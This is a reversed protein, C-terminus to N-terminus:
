MGMGALAPVSQAPKALQSSVEGGGEPAPAGGQMMAMQEAQATMQAQQGMTELYKDPQDNFERILDSFFREKNAAFIEPFLQAVTTVKEMALAMDLAKGRLHLSATTIELDFEWEDLYDTPIVVIQAPEGEQYRLKEEEVDLANFPENEASFGVPQNLAQITEPQAVRVQLVGTEGSTLPSRPINFIRTFEAAREEGLVANLYMPRNYHMLLNILRVRTKQLWLDKLMTFFTGKLEFAKENSIVIERATVGTGGVGQQLADVSALSLEQTVMQLMNFESQSVGEIPLPKVGDINDVYIRTDGTVFEDELEMADKNNMSVLMPTVLSRYNKDLMTNYLSNEVDQQPMLINALSNGWFLSSNAFPEFLTKAFPYWKKTKGWLLPAELVLVGNAIIAYMDKVKSYYRLVEIKKVNEIRAFWKDGFFLDTQGRSEQVQAKTKVNGANKFQGFELEFEDADMYDIWMVAPQDQVNRIYANKVLFRNLPINVEIPCDELVAKKEEVEIAGTAPDYSKVIKSTGIKYLYGDYKVITGNVGCDWGDFFITTEPNDYAIYSHRLLNKAIDARMMSREGSANTATISMEPPDKAVSSVYARLKNRTTGTFVNAQWEEKNQSARSPVYSNARKQSDDWFTIPTRDNMEKYSNSLLKAMETYEDYVFEITKTERDTPQYPKESVDEDRDEM